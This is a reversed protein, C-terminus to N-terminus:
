GGTPRLVAAEVLSREIYAVANKTAHNAAKNIAAAIISRLAKVTSSRNRWGRGNLVHCDECGLFLLVITDNDAASEKVMGKAIETGVDLEPASVPDPKAEPKVEADPYYREVDPMALVEVLSLRAPLWGHDDNAYEGIV